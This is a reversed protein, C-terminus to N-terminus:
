PQVSLNTQHVVQKSNAESITVSYVGAALVNDISIAHTASGGTHSITQGSVRQGLANYISVTYKGAVVNALEVNLTKGKLPNPYLNYTTLQVNYTLKAVNSYSISGGTSIAKIRYYTTSTVSNDTSAYSATATNKATVKEIATFNKADASKEVEYAVVNKEGVTNWNITAIKNSLAASAVISNVPLASPAFLITFRNSFSAANSADVTFSITTSGTGLAKTTNKFADYLLPEFGNNVYNSADVSLQYATATPSTIKLSIADSATAPLRGDISLNKGKDSIFLNDNAGSFKIADQAGYVKNGFSPSFAVAAGDVKDFAKTTASQKMLSVYIKSLQATGFVSAKTSSIAKATEQFVVTPSVGTTQVFVAQGPQIYGTNVPVTGTNSYTGLGSVTAAGTLANFAIYKGTAGSTPDLYWYSGNIGSSAGYVTTTSSNSGTGTGWQVPAVYPNAVLSFGNLTTNLGASSGGTATNVVGTGSYTVTGTVLKGTASLTTANFMSLGSQTNIVPTTYLNATRDGRVLLRYGTFADLNTANTNPLATWTGNVFTYDQTNYTSTGSEDFGNADNSGANSSGAYATPGTIFIGYGPTTAGNLQWNKFITGAGYVEPAMDRYARFGKPIYREVTVNGSITGTNGSAGYPALVGTNALSLSKLTLNGNTTLTGSQLTLLGSVGFSASAGVAAGYTSNLTLNIVSGNGTINQLVGASGTLITTGTGGIAANTGNYTLAKGVNLINNNVISAGSSLILDRVTATTTASIVPQKTTAVITADIQSNPVGNDWNNYNDWDTSLTGTWNTGSSEVAGANGVVYDNVGTTPISLGTVTFTYPTGTPNVTQFSYSGAGTYAGFQNTSAAVYGSAGNSSNFQYQITATTAVTGLVSWQLDVVKTADIVPSVFGNGTIGLVGVTLTTTAAPTITLPTYSTASNAIPYLTATSAPASATVTGTTIEIYNTSSGGSISGATINNADLILKGSIIALAGNATISHDTTVKGGSYTNNITLKNFVINAGNISQTANTSTSGNLTVDVASTTSAGAMNFIGTTTTTISGGINFVHNVTNTINSTSIAGGTAVSVGNTVNLTVPTAVNPFNLIGAASIADTNLTGTYALTYTGGTVTLTGVKGTTGILEKDSSCTAGINVNVRHNSSTGFAPAATLLATASNRTISGGDLITINNTSNNITGAAITLNNVTLAEPLNFTSGSSNFQLNQVVAGVKFFSASASLVTSSNTSIIVTSGSSSADIVGANATASLSSSGGTVISFTKGNVNLVESNLSSLGLRVTSVSSGLNLTGKTVSFNFFTTNTPIPDFYPTISSATNFYLTPNSSLSAQSTFYDNADMTLSFSNGSGVTFISASSNYYALNITAPTTSNGGTISLSNNVTCSQGFTVNSSVVSLTNLTLSYSPQTFTLTTSAATGSATANNTLTILSTSTGSGTFYDFPLTGAGSGSADVVLTAAPLTTTPITVAKSGSTLTCGTLTAVVPGTFRVNSNTLTIGAISVASAPLAVNFSTSSANFFNAIDNAAPVTGTGWNSTTSWTPYGNTGGIWNISCNINTVNGGNVTNSATAATANTNTIYSISCLSISNAPSASPNINISASSSATSKITLLNGFVGALTLTNAITQTTGATFQLTAGAVQDTLNYFTTTGSITQNTGTFAVTGNNGSFSGTNAWNGLVDITSSPATLSGTITVNNFNTAASQTMVTTGNFTVTGAEANLTGGNVFDGGITLGYNNSSVDFTGGSTTTLTGTVTIAGAATQSGSTNSLTLNKYTTAYVSQGGNSATYKVIGSTATFTGSNTITGGINLVGSTGLTLSKGSNIIISSPSNVVTGNVTVVNNITVTTSGSPVTGGLWTSGTNWDSSVTSVYGLITFPTNDTNSGDTAVINGSSSANSPVIATLSTPSNFTVSVPINNITVSTGSTFASGHITITQGIYGTGNSQGTIGTAPVIAGLSFVNAVGVAFLQAGGSITSSSTVTGSSGAGALSTYNGGGASQAVVSSNAVSSSTLSIKASTLTGTSSFSWYEDSVSTLTGDVNGTSGTNFAQMTATVAGSTSPNVLASPMYTNTGNNANGLPYNYTATGSALSLTLPGDVYAIPTSTGDSGGSVASNSTSTVKLLYSPNSLIGSSLNLNNSVTVNSGLTVGSSNNITLGYFTETGGSAKTITVGSATGGFTVTNTGPTFTGADSWSGNVQLTGGLSLTGGTISLDGIVTRASSPTTITGSTVTVYQPVGVGVTTGSGWEAGVTNSGAYKLYSTATYTPAVSVSGGANLQLIGNGLGTFTLGGTNAFAAVLVLTAGNNNITTLGTNTFPASITNTSFGTINLAYGTTFSASGTYNVNFSGAVNIIGGLTIIPSGSRAGGITLNNYSMAVVTQTSTGNYNVTSGTTLLAGTSYGASNTFVGAIGISNVPDLTVSTTLRTGSITLNTYNAGTVTQPTAVNGGGSPVVYNFTGGIVGTVNGPTFKNGVSINGTNSAGITPAVTGATTFGINYFNLGTPITQSAGGTFNFTTKNTTPVTSGNWSLTGNITFIGDGYGSGFDINRNQVYGNDLNLNNYTGPNVQEYTGNNRNYIVTGSWTQNRPFVTGDTTIITGLGTNTFTGLAYLGFSGMTLTSSNAISLSANNLFGLAAGATLNGGTLILTGPITRATSPSTVTGSANITINQPIGYGQAGYVTGTVAGGIGMNTFTVGGSTVTAGVTTPWTPTGSAASTGATTVSFVYSSVNTGIIQQGLSYAYNNAFAAISVAPLTMYGSGPNTITISGVGLYATATAATGANTFTVGGSTVTGSAPWVPTGSAASTGATTVTYVYGSATIQTGLSYLTNNAFGTGITITPASTYGTGQNTIEIGSVTGPSASLVVASTAGSGGGGSVTVVPPYTYGSGGSTLQIGGVVNVNATGTAQPGSYTYTATGGSVTGSSPATPATGVSGSNTATYLNGNSYYQTGSSVTGTAPWQTGFIVTPTGTFGYGTSGTTAITASPTTSGTSTSTILVSGVSNGQIWENGSGSTGITYPAYTYNLTSSSGYTPVQSLSSTAGNFTLNGNITPSSPLTVAGGITLINFSPIAGTVTATGAFAVTGNTGSTNNFTGFAFSSIGSGFTLTGGATQDITGSNSFSGSVTLTGSAGFTLSKGTSVTLGGTTISAAGNLTIANNITVPANAVSPIAGGLWVVPSNDNWDGAANTIYGNLTLASSLPTTGDTAVINGSLAVTSPVTVVIQSYTQSAFSTISPSGNITLSTITNLGSGAIAVQQGYYANATAGNQFSYPSVPTIGTICYSCSAVALSLYYASGAPLSSASPVVPYAITGAGLSSFPGAQASSYAVANYGAGSAAASSLSITNASVTGTSPTLTWYETTSLASLGSVSGGAGSNNPTITVTNAASANPTNLTVGYYFDGSAYIGVPFLYNGTNSGTALGRSFAGNIYSTTSGGSIAGAATNSVTLSNTSTNVRGATLTLTGTVTINQSLSVGATAGTSSNNITLNNISGSSTYTNANITQLASGNYLVTASGTANINGGSGNSTVSGKITLTNAGVTLTSTGTNFYLLTGVTVSGTMSVATGGTIISLNTFTGSPLSQAAAGYFTVTGTGGWILGSPIPTSSTSTPVATKLTGVISVSTPSGGLVYASTMDLTNGIYTSTLAGNVNINGSATLTTTAGAGGFNLNTYTGGVVTQVASTTNANYNVTGSWGGSTQPLPTASTGTVCQTQVTGLGSSTITNSTNGSLVFTVANFIDGSNTVNLADIAVNGALSYTAPTITGASNVGNITLTGIKGSGTGLLENAATCTATITVNVRDSSAAGYVLSSSAVTAITGAARSVTSGNAMTITNTTSNTLVGATLILKNGSLIKIPANLTVGGGAGTCNVTLNLLTGAAVTPLESGTTIASTLATLYAISINGGYTPSYTITGTATTANRQITYTGGSAITITNSPSFTLTATNSNALKLNNTVSIAPNTLTFTTATAAGLSDTLNYVSNNAFFNTSATNGYTGTGYFTVGAGTASADVGHGTTNSTTTITSNGVLMTSYQGLKLIGGALTLTNSLFSINASTATVLTGATLTSSSNFSTTTNFTVYGNTLTLAAFKYLTADFNFTGIPSGSTANSSNFVISGTNTGGAKILNTTAATYTAAGGSGLTLATSSGNNLTLTGTSNTADFSLNTTVAVNCYFTTNTNGTKLNLKNVTIPGNYSGLLGVTPNSGTLVYQGTGSGTTATGIGSFIGGSVTITNGGDALTINTNATQSNKTFYLNTVNMGSSGAITYTYAASASLDLNGFTLGTPITQAAAAALKIEGSINIAASSMVASNVTANYTGNTSALVLTSGSYSKVYVNPSINTVSAIGTVLDGVAINLGSPVTYTGTLALPIIGVNAGITATTATSLTLTTGSYATVTTGAAIGTQAYIQTGVPITLGSPVTLTTAGSSASATTYAYWASAANVAIVTSSGTSMTIVGTGSVYTASSFTAGVPVNTGTLLFTGSPFTLGTQVTLATGASAQVVNQIAGYQIAAATATTSVATASTHIGSTTGTIANAGAGLGTVLVTNGGDNFNCGAVNSGSGSGNATGLDLASCTISGGATGSGNGLVSFTVYIGGTFYFKGISVNTPFMVYLPSGSSTSGSGINGGDFVFNDTASTYNPTGGSSGGYSSSWNSNTTFTAPSSSSTTNGGIWYWTTANAMGAFLVAIIMLLMKGFLSASSKKYFSNKMYSIKSLICLSSTTESPVKASVGSILQCAKKCMAFNLENILITCDNDYILRLM